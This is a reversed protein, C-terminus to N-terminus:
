FSRYIQDIWGLHSRVFRGPEAAIKLSGAYASLVRAEDQRQERTKADPASAASLQKRRAANAYVQNVAVCWGGLAKMVAPRDIVFPLEPNVRACHWLVHVTQGFLSKLGGGAQAAMKEAQSDARNFLAPLVNTKAFCMQTRLSLRNRESENPDGDAPLALAWVAQGDINIRGPLLHAAQKGESAMRDQVSAGPCAVQAPAEKLTRIAAIHFLVEAVCEARAIAIDEAAPVLDVTGPSPNATGRYAVEREAM